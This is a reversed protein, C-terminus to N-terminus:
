LSGSNVNQSVRNLNKIETLFFYLKTDQREGEANCLYKGMDNVSKTFMTKSPKM